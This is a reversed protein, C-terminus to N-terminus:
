GSSDVFQLLTLGVDSEVTVEFPCVGALSTTDSFTIPTRTPALALAAPASAAGLALVSLVVSFTRLPRM